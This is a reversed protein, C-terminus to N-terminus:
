SVFKLEKCIAVMFLGSVSKVTLSTASLFSRPYQCLVILCSILSLFSFKTSRDSSPAFAVILIGSDAIWSNRFDLAYSGKNRLVAFRFIALGCFFLASQNECSVPRRSLRLTLATRAFNPSSHYATNMISRSTSASASLKWSSSLSNWISISAPSKLISEKCSPSIRFYQWPIHNSCFSSQFIRFLWRISRISGSITLLSLIRWFYLSFHTGAAFVGTEAESVFGVGGGAGGFGGFGFISVIDSSSKSIKQSWYGTLSSLFFDFSFNKFSCLDKSGTIRSETFSLLSFFWFHFSPKAFFGKVQILPSHQFSSNGVKVGLRVM